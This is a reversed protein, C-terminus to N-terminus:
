VEQTQILGLAVEARLYSSHNKQPPEVAQCESAEKTVVRHCNACLVDCKRIETVIEDYRLRKWHSGGGPHLRGASRALKPNKEAPERHHLDLCDPRSEGCNVCGNAAKYRRVLNLRRRNTRATNSLAM